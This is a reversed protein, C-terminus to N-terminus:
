CTLSIALKRSPPPIKSSVVHTACAGLRRSSAQEVHVGYCRLTRPPPFERGHARARRHRIIGIRNPRSAYLGASQLSTAGRWLLPGAAALEAKRCRSPGRWRACTRRLGAAIAIITAQAQPCLHSEPCPLSRCHLTPGSFWGVGVCHVRQTGPAKPLLRSRGISKTAWRAPFQPHGSM